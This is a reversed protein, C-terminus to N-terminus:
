HSPIWVAGRTDVYAARLSIVVSRDMGDALDFSSDAEAQTGVFRTREESYEHFVETETLFFM